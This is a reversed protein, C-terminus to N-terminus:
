CTSVARYTIATIMASVHPSKARAVQALSHSLECVGEPLCCKALSSQPHEFVRLSERSQKGLDLTRATGPCDVSEM